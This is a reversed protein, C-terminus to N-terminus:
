GLETTAKTVIYVQAEVRRGTEIGVLLSSYLLKAEEMFKGCYCKLIIGRLSEGSALSHLGGGKRNLAILPANVLYPKIDRPAKSTTVNIVLTAIVKLYKALM